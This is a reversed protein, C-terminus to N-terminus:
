TFRPSPSGPCDGHEAGPRRLRWAAVEAAIQAETADPMQRRLRQRQMGEGVEYLDLALRLRQVAASSNM